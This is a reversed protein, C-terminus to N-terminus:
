LNEVTYLTIAISIFYQTVAVPDFTGYKCNSIYIYQMTKPFATGQVTTYIWLANYYTCSCLNCTVYSNFNCYLILHVVSSSYMM